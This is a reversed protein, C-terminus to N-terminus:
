FGLQQKALDIYPLLGIGSEPALLTAVKLLEEPAERGVAISISSGKLLSIDNRDNGAGIVPLDQNLLKVISKIAGGKSAMQHTVLNMCYKLSTPDQILSQEVPLKSIVDHLPKLELYTGFNKLCCAAKTPLNAFDEIKELPHFASSELNLIHLFLDKSFRGERYFTKYDHHKDTYVIFDEPHNAAIFDIELILDKSLFYNAVNKKSPMEFLQAGNQTALFYPFPLNQLYAEAYPFFRGTIFGVQAGELYSQYLYEIVKQPIKHSSDTLTGDIDLALLYKRM